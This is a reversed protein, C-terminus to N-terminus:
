VQTHPPSIRGVSLTVLVPARRTVGRRAVLAGCLDTTPGSDAKRVDLQSVARDAGWV